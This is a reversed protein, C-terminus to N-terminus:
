DEAHGILFSLDAPANSNPLKARYHCKFCSSLKQDFPELAVNALHEEGNLSESVDSATFLLGPNGLWQVGILQYFQPWANMSKFLKQWKENSKEEYIDIPNERTIQSPVQAENKGRNNTMAYITNTVNDLSKDTEKLGWLYPEQATVRNNGPCRKGACNTDYLNYNEDTNNQKEIDNNDPANKIHEFTAVVWGAYSTKHFIHFGVLAVDVIKPVKNGDETDIDIARKTIYYKEREKEDMDQAVMWAAKIEIAGENDYENCYNSSDYGDVKKSCVLKFLNDSSNFKKFNKADYWDNKLIQNVEIPNIREENMIYNGKRDVLSIDPDLISIEGKYKSAGELLGLNPMNALHKLLKENNAKPRCQPPSFQYKLKGDQDKPNQGKSLFVEEPYSYFEWVRPSDPKQGIKTEEPFAERTNCDAPWNLAIFTKWAFNNFFQVGDQAMPNFPIKSIIKEESDNTTYALSLNLPTKSAIGVESDNTYALSPNIHLMWLCSVFAIFLSLYTVLRQILKM